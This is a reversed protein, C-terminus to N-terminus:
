RDGQRDDSDFLLIRLYENGCEYFKINKEFSVERKIKLVM